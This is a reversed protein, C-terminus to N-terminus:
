GQMAFLLLVASLVMAGLTFKFLKGRQMAVPARKLHSEPRSDDEGV